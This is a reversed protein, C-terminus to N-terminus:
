VVLWLVYGVYVSLMLTADARDIQHRKFTLASLPLLSASLLLVGMDVSSIGDLNLPSISISLGLVLLVNSINSGVVNGLALQSRGKLAAVVCTALEPFSTGWAIITVSIVYDSVGLGQALQVASDLFIDGGYILGGLGLLILVLAYWTKTKYSSEAIRETETSECKTPKDTANGAVSSWMFYVFGLLFGVGVIRPIYGPMFSVGFVSVSALFLLLSVFFSLPLNKLSNERSLRMPRIMATVGIIVLTNFINSGMVNGLAIQSNGKLASAVSVVIEPASTGIAVITLGIVLESIGMGRAVIVSGDTLLSAGVIILLLGLLLVLVLSLM